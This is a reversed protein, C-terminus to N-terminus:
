LEEALDIQVFLVHRHQFLHFQGSISLTSSFSATLLFAALKEPKRLRDM